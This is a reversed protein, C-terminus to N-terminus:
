STTLNETCILSIASSDDPEMIIHFINNNRALILQTNLTWLKAQDRTAHLIHRFAGRLDTYRIIM